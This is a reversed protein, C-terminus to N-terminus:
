KIILKYITNVIDCIGENKELDAFYKKRNEYEETGCLERCLSLETERAEIYMYVPHFKDFKGEGSKKISFSGDILDEFGKKIRESIDEGYRYKLQIDSLLSAGKSLEPTFFIRADEKEGSHYKLIGRLYNLGDLEQGDAKKILKGAFDLTEKNIDTAFVPTCVETRLEDLDDFGDEPDFTNEECIRIYGKLLLNLSQRVTYAIDRRVYGAGYIAGMYDDFAGCFNSAFNPYKIQMYRVLVPSPFSKILGSNNCSLHFGNKALNTYINMGTEFISQDDMSNISEPIHEKPIKMNYLRSEFVCLYLKAEQNLIIESNKDFKKALQVANYVKDFRYSRRFDEAMKSLIECLYLIIREKDEEKLQESLKTGPKLTEDFKRHLLHRYLPAFITRITENEGNEGKPVNWRSYENLDFAIHMLCIIGPLFKTKIMKEDVTFYKIASKQNSEETRDFGLSQLVMRSVEEIGNLNLQMSIIKHYNTDTHHDKIFKVVTNIYKAVLYNRWEEHAFSYQCEQTYDQRILKEEDNELLMNLERSSIKPDDLYLEKCHENCVAEYLVTGLNDKTLGNTIDKIEQRGFSYTDSVDESMVISYATYPLVVYYYYLYRSKNYVMMHKENGLRQHSRHTYIWDMLSYVNRIEKLEEDPLSLLLLAYLPINALRELEQAGFSLKDKYKNIIEEATKQDTGSLNLTRIVTNKDLHPIVMKEERATIVVFLDSDNNNAKKILDKISETIVKVTVENKSAQYENFGDLLILSKGCEASFIDKEYGKFIYTRICNDDTNASLIELRTIDALPVIFINEFENKSNRHIRDLINFFLTKGQGGPGTILNVKNQEFFSFDCSKNCFDVTLVSEGTKADILSQPMYDPYDNLSLLRSLKASSLVKIDKPDLNRYDENEWFQTYEFLANYFASECIFKEFNDQPVNENDINEVWRGVVDIDHINSTNVLYGFFIKAKEKYNHPTIRLYKEWIGNFVLSFSVSSPTYIGTDARKGYEYKKITDEGCGSKSLEKRFETISNIGHAHNYCYDIIVKFPVEM